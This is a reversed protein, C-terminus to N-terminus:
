DTVGIFTDRCFYISVQTSGASVSVALGNPGAASELQRRLEAGFLQVSEAVQEGRVNVHVPFRLQSHM